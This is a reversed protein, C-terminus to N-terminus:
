PRGAGAEGLNLGCARTKRARPSIVRGGRRLPPSRNRNGIELRGNPSRDRRPRRTSQCLQSHPRSPNVPSTKRTPPSSSPRPQPAVQPNRNKLAVRTSILPADSRANKTACSAPPFCPACPAQPPCLFQSPAFLGALCVCLTTSRRLSWDNVVVPPKRCGFLTSATATAASAPPSFEPDM